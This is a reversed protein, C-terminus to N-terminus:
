LGAFQLYSAVLQEGWLLAIWGAAAIFPGFPMPKGRALKGTAMLVMGVVAGVLSSLIIVLPLLSWGLWAGFAAMLKFDGYGMGEKGTALRFGHYVLWLSLYGAAAGVIAEAATVRGGIAAVLLGLWLLPLVISDPLLQHDLDIGSAAILGWTLLVASVGFATPGFEAAVMAASAAALMEVAPYRLSIRKACGACRGRLLLYSVVPINEYWRIPRACAPCRSGPQSLSLPVEDQENIKLLSRCEQRWSRQMMLPLRHIVVNLFSGVLLGLLACLAVWAASSELLFQM